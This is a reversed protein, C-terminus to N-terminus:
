GAGVVKNKGSLWKIVCLVFVRTTLFFIVEYGWTVYEAFAVVVFVNKKFNRGLKANGM